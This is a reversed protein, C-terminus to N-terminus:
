FKRKQAFGLDWNLYQKCLAVSYCTNSVRYYRTTCEKTCSLSLRIYHLTFFCLVSCPACACVCVAQCQSSASCLMAVIGQIDVRTLKWQAGKFGPHFVKVSLFCVILMLLMALINVIVTSWIVATDYYSM